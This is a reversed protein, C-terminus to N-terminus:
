KPQGGIKETDASSAIGKKAELSYRLTSALSIAYDALYLAPGSVLFWAPGAWILASMMAAHDFVARPIFIGSWFYGFTGKPCVDLGVKSRMAFYSVAMIHFIFAYVAAVIAYLLATTLGHPRGVIAGMVFYVVPLAGLRQVFLYYPGFHERLIARDAALRTSKAGPHGHPRDKRAM